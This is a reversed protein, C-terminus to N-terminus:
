ENSFEPLVGLYFYREGQQVATMRLPMLELGWELHTDPEGCQVFDGACFYPAVAEGIHMFIGEDIECPAAMLYKSLDLGSEEWGKLTKIRPQRPSTDICLAHGFLELAEANNYENIQMACSRCYYKHTSFNFFTANPNSCAKRNCEANCSGKAPKPADASQRKIAQENKIHDRFQGAASKM